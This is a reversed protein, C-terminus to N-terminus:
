PTRGERWEQIQADTWKLDVRLIEEIEDLSLVREWEGEGVYEYQMATFTTPFNVLM